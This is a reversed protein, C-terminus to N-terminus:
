SRMRELHADSDLIMRHRISFKEDASGGGGILEAGEVCLISGVREAKPPM